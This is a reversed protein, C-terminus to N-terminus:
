GHAEKALYNINHNRIKWFEETRDSGFEVAVLADSLELFLNLLM